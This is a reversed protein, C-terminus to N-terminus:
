AKPKQPLPNRIGQPAHQALVKLARSKIAKEQQNVIELVEDQTLCRQYTITPYTVKEGDEGEAVPTEEEGKKARPPLYRMHIELVRRSHLQKEVLFEWIKEQSYPTKPPDNRCARILGGVEKEFFSQNPRKWHAQSMEDGPGQSEGRDALCLVVVGFLKYFRYGENYECHPQGENSEDPSFWKGEGLLVLYDGPLLDNKQGGGWATAEENFSAGFMRKKKEVM